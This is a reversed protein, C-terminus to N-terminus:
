EEVMGPQVAVDHNSELNAIEFRVKDAFHVEVLRRQVTEDFGRLFSRGDADYEAPAFILRDDFISQTISFARDAHCLVSKKRRSQLSFQWLCLFELLDNGLRLESRESVRHIPHM